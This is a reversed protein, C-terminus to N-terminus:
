PLVPTQYEPNREIIAIVIKDLVSKLLNKIFNNRHLLRVFFPSTFYYISVVLKGMFYPNLKEDRFRRLILVEPADVDKYVMTAIFCWAMPGAWLYEWEKVLFKVIIYLGILAAAILFAKAIMDLENKPKISVRVQKIDSKRVLLKDKGKEIYYLESSPKSTKFHLPYINAEKRYSLTNKYMISNTDDILKYESSIASDNTIPNILYFSRDSTHLIVLDKSLLKSHDEMKEFEANSIVIEQRSACGPLLLFTFFALIALKYPTM